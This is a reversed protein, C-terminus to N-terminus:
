DDGKLSVSEAQAEILRARAIEVEDDLSISQWVIEMDSELGLLKLNMRCIKEIVPSLLQRYNKIESTLIDAQQKSMRETSSWSIGLMFPPIGLKAIIQEM